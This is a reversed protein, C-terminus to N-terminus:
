LNVLFRSSSLDIRGTDMAEPGELVCLFTYAMSGPEPDSSQHSGTQPEASLGLLYILNSVSPSSVSQQPQAALFSPSPDSFGPGWREPGPGQGGLSPCHRGLVSTELHFGPVLQLCWTAESHTPSSSGECPESPLQNKPPSWTTCFLKLKKTPSKLSCVM